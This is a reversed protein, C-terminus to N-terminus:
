KAVFILSLSNNCGSVSVTSPKQECTDLCNISLLIRGSSLFLAVANLATVCGSIKDESSVAILETISVCFSRTFFWFSNPLHCVFSLLM